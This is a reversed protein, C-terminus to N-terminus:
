SGTNEYVNWSQGRAKRLPGKNEYVNARREDFFQQEYRLTMPLNPWGRRAGAVQCRFGSVLFEDGGARRNQFGDRHATAAEGV